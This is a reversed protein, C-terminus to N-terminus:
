HGRNQKAAVALNIAKNQPKKYSEIKENISKECNDSTITVFPYLHLPIDKEVDKNFLMMSELEKESFTTPMDMIVFLEDMSISDKGECKDPSLIGILDKKYKVGDNKTFHHIMMDAVAPLLNDLIETGFEVNESKLYNDIDYVLEKFDKELYKFMEPSGHAWGFVIQHFNAGSETSQDVMQMSKEQFEFKYDKLRYGEKEAGDFTYFHHLEHVLCSLVQSFDGAECNKSFVDQNINIANTEYEYEMIGDNMFVLNFTGGSKYFNDLYGKTKKHSISNIVEQLTEKSYDKGSSYTVPNEFGPLEFDYEWKTTNQANKKRGKRKMVKESKIRQM